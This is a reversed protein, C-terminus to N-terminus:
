DLRHINRDNVAIILGEKNMKTYERLGEITAGEWDEVSAHGRGREQRSLYLRKINDRQQLATQM